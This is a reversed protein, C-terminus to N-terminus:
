AVRIWVYVAYFKPMNNHPKGSGMNETRIKQSDTPEAKLGTIGPYSSGSGTKSGALNVTWSYSSDVIKLSTNPLEDKTLTHENEGGTTKVPYNSSATMLFTEDPLKEWTGGFRISPNEDRTTIFIDGVKYYANPYIKDGALNNLTCGKSSM